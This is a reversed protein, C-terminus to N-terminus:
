RCQHINITNLEKHSALHEELSTFASSESTGAGSAKLSYKDLHGSKLNLIHITINGHATIIPIDELENKEYDIEEVIQCICHLNEPIGINKLEVVDINELSRGFEHSFAQRFYTNSISIGENKFLTVVRRNFNSLQENQSKLIATQVPQAIDIYDKASLALLSPETLMRQPSKTGNDSVPTHPQNEEKQSSTDQKEIQSINNNNVQQYIVLKKISITISILTIALLIIKLFSIKFANKQKEAENNNHINYVDGVHVNNGASIESHDIKNKDNGEANM